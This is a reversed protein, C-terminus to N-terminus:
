LWTLGALGALGALSHRANLRILLGVNYRVAPPIFPVPPLPPHAIESQMKRQEAHDLTDRQLTLAGALM